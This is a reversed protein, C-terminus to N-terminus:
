RVLGSSPISFRTHSTRSRAFPRRRRRRIMRHVLFYSFISEKIRLFRYSETLHPFIVQTNGKTGMTGSELLPLRYYVCRRDVYRGAFNFSHKGFEIGTTRWERAEVNDLANCVGHLNHFFDDNFVEETAESVIDSEGWVKVAANFGTIALAAV